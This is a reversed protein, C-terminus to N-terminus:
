RSRGRRWAAVSYYGAGALIAGLIDALLDTTSFTRGVYLQLVEVVAGMASVALITALLVMLTPRVMTSVVLITMLALLGYAPIHGLNAMAPSLLDADSNSEPLLSLVLITAMTLLWAVILHGRFQAIDTKETM